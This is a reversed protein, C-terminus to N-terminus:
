VTHKKKNLVVAGGMTALVAMAAYLVVGADGTKPTTPQDPKAPQDPEGTAPITETRTVGCITCTFTKEGTEAATAEKTIKGEDWHHGTAPITVDATEKEGVEDTFNKQCRACSWYETNGDETCTAAKAAHHTMDHGLAKIVQGDAIKKGCDLCWTDGSYGDETCTADKQGRVETNGAHNDPDVPLTVNQVERTGAEDVFSKQCRACTWYEINGEAVCTAAKAAHHTMDHGLAELVEEETTQCRLCTHHRLGKETCTAATDEIWQDWDHGLAPAVLSTLELAGAADSYDKGCKTCHWYEVTGDNTCTAPVADHHIMNHTHDLKPIEVGEKAYQCVTCEEHKMGTSEETPERDIVWQFDHAAVDTKSGCDCAHWHNEADSSWNKSYNHGQAPLITDAETIEKTCAQDSFFKGCRACTWYEINGNEEHTPEVRDHHRSDHGLADVVPIADIANGDKDLMQGCADCTYYM